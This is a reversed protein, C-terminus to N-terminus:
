DINTYYYEYEEATIEMAFLISTDRKLKKEASLFVTLNSDTVTTINDVNFQGDRWYRRQITVIYYRDNRM